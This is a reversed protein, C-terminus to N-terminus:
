RSDFWCEPKRVVGSSSDPASSREAVVSKFSDSELIYYFYRNTVCVYGGQWIICRSTCRFMGHQIPPISSDDTPPNLSPPRRLAIM